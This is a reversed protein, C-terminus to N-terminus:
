HLNRAEHIMLDVPIIVGGLKIFNGPHADGIFVGLTQHFYMFEREQVPTFGLSQMYASIEAQEITRDSPVKESVWPSSTVIRLQNEPTIVGVIRILFGFLHRHWALRNLYELVTAQRGGDAQTWGSVGPHTAKIALVNAEDYFIEHETGHPFREFAELFDSELLSNSLVAWRILAKRQAFIGKGYRASDARTRCRVYRYASGPSDREIPRRKASDQSSTEANNQTEVIDTRDSDTL